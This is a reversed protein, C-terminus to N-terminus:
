FFGQDPNLAVTFDDHLLDVSVYVFSVAFEGLDLIDDFCRLGAQAELLGLKDLRVRVQALDHLLVKVRM